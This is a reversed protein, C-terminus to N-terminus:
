QASDSGRVTPAYNIGKVFRLFRENDDLEEETLGCDFMNAKPNENGCIVCHWIEIDIDFSARIMCKECVPPGLGM